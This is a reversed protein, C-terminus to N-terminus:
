SERIGDTGAPAEVEGAPTKQEPQGHGHAHDQLFLVCGVLSCLFAGAIAGTAVYAGARIPTDGGLMQFLSGGLGTDRVPRVAARLAGALLLLVFSALPLLTAVVYWLGPHAGFDVAM